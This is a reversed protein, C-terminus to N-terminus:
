HLTLEALLMMTKNKFIAELSVKLHKIHSSGHGLHALWRM